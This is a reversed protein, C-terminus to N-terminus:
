PFEMYAETFSGPFTFSKPGHIMPNPPPGVLDSAVLNKPDFTPRFFKQVIPHSQFSEGLSFHFMGVNSHYDKTKVVGGKANTQRKIRRKTTSLWTCSLYELRSRFNEATKGM